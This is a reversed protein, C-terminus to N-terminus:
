GRSRARAWEAVLASTTAVGTRQRADALRRHATRLSMLAYRAAESMPLGDALASLLADLPADLADLAGVARDTPVPADVSVLPAGGVGTLRRLDDLFSSAIADDLPGVILVAGRAAALLAQAADVANLVPGACVRDGLDWGDDGGFGECLSRGPPLLRALADPALRGSRDILHAARVSPPAEILAVLAGGATVPDAAARERGASPLASARDASRTTRSM